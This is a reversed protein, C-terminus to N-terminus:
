FKLLWTAWRRGGAELSVGTGTRFRTSRCAHCLTFCRELRSAPWCGSDKPSIRWNHARRLCRNWAGLVWETRRPQSCAVLSALVCLSSRFAHLARFLSRILVRRWSASFERWGEAIKLTTRLSAGLDRVRRMCSILSLSPLSSAPTSSDFWIAEKRRVTKWPSFM